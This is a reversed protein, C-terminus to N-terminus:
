LNLRYLVKTKNLFTEQNAIKTILPTRTHPLILLEISVKSGRATNSESEWSYRFIKRVEKQHDVCVPDHFSGDVNEILNYEDIQSHSQVFDGIGLLLEDRSQEELSFCYNM